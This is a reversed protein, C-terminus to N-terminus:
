HTVPRRRRFFSRLVFSLALSPRDRDTMSSFPEKPMWGVRSAHSHSYPLFIGDDLSRGRWMM